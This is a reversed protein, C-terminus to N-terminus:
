ILGREKRIADLNVLSDEWDCTGPDLSAFGDAWPADFWAEWIGEGQKPKDEYLHSRGDEDRALWKWKVFVHSVDISPKTLPRPRRRHIYDSGINSISFWVKDRPGFCELEDDLLADLLDIQEDRTLDKFPKM